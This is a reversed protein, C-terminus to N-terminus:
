GVVGVQQEQYWVGIAEIVQEREFGASVITQGLGKVLVFEARSKRNGSADEIDVITEGFDTPTPAGQEVRQGEANGSDVFTSEQLSHVDGESLLHTERM